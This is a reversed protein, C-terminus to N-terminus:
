AKLCEAVCEKLTNTHHGIVKANKIGWITYGAKGIKKIDNSWEGETVLYIVLDPGKGYKELSFLKRAADGVILHDGKTDIAFIKKNAWVIFDPNFNNSDGKDLLPIQFCGQSPNRFWTNKTQDLEKAFSLEFANFDSYREHLANNFSQAVSSNIYIVPVPFTNAADQIALAQEVYSDVVAVAKERIIDAAKSNYEVMADFLEHETDCLNTVKPFYKQIERKFVWRATVKNTHETEIWQEAKKQSSGINQLVRIHSGKGVTNSTDARFDPIKEVITKIPALANTADISVRPLLMEKKPKEQSSNKNGGKANYVTLTVEPTDTALRDRVEGIVADFVQKEDTRIYFSATNLASHPYHQANPQRLVRGIVQTVQDKSGMDKDIYAFYCLPDDWGEQLSLNFIVHHYDVSSFNDFDNDGGSFLHFNSPPPFKSDFKLDCYVAIDNPDIGNGDVLHQWIRIPQSQRQEFAVLVNDREGTEVVINTNSVYIAKPVFGINNTSNYELLANYDAVLENIAMEMPTVYGGLSIHKKILGRAVVDSSKVQTVFNDTKWEKDEVIRQIVRKNLTDPVRMTASASLIADPNLKLLLETQQDSLNHGEDYIIIFPRKLGNSLERSKLLNWLSVDANDLNVRYVMRDGKEMDKQNFKGVTAVLLLAKDAEEVDTTSCDILPLVNFNPLFEAYKGVSLNIYAQAVVVKGKSIWLVIPELPLQARIQSVADALILTKGAGTIASLDQFFPIIVDKTRYLPDEMYKKFREAIQSSAKSQFTFIEM